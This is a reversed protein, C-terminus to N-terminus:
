RPRRCPEGIGDRVHMGDAFTKVRLGGGGDAQRLADEALIVDQRDLEAGQAGFEDAVLIGAACGGGCRHRFLELIKWPSDNLLRRDFSRREKKPQYPPELYPCQAAIDEGTLTALASRAHNLPRNTKPRENPLRAQRQARRLPRRLAGM